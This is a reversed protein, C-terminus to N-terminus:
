SQAEPLRLAAKLRRPLVRRVTASSLVVAYIRARWHAPNLRSAQRFQDLALAEAGAALYISAKAYAAGARIRDARAALSPDDRLAKTV